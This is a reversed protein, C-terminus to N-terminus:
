THCPDAIINSISTCILNVAQRLAYKHSHVYSISGTKTCTANKSKRTATAAAGIAAEVTKTAVTV